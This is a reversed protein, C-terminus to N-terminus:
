GSSQWAASNKRTGGWENRQWKCNRERSQDNAFGHLIRVNGELLRMLIQHNSEVVLDALDSTLEAAIEARLLESWKVDKLGLASRRIVNRYRLGVRSVFSPSYENVLAKFPGHFPTQFEGVTPIPFLSVGISRQEFDAEV